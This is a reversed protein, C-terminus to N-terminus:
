RSRRGPGSPRCSPRGTTSFDFPPPPETMPNGALDRVGEAISVVYESALSLPEVPTITMTSGWWSAAGDVDPELSVAAEASAPEM